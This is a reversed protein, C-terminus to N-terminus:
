FFNIGINYFNLSKAKQLIIFPIITGYDVFPDLGLFLSKLYVTFRCDIPLSASKSSSLLSGTEEPELNYPISLLDTKYYENRIASLLGLLDFSLLGQALLSIIFESKDLM